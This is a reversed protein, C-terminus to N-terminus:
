RPGNRRSRTSPSCALVREYFSLVQRVYREDSYQSRARELAAEALELSLAPTNLVQCIGDALGSKTAPVLKAVSSDLLPSHGGVETAVIARGSRLYSYLKLPTASGQNRPSVIVSAARLYSPVKSPHVSGVFTASGDLGSRQAMRRYHEVEGARGGVLVLQAQPIREHVLGFADLLLDVGQYPAFNGTYLVIPRDEIGFEVTPDASLDDFITSDDGFNEITEHPASGCHALALEGLAKSITIIGDATAFVRREMTRFFWSFPGRNYTPFHALQQPLSSHMDYVHVVGHRRALDVGFFAAEEHTHLVDHRGRRLASEAAWLLPGDLFLKARSPGIGVDRVWPPRLCRIYSLGPLAVDEGFPYTVLDVTHGGSLLARIRHLVSLPTGRPRFVPQPAVMLIRLGRSPNM